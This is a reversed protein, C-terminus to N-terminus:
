LDFLSLQGGAPSGEIRLLRLKTDVGGPASFGGPKGGAALVRHCPVVLPFPNAGMAQGVERALLPDGLRAALEGYTVTAGAPVARALAYVRREFAGVRELDLAVFGLDAPQGALLATIAAVVRAIEPTAAAERAGPCRRRLAARTAAESSGPLLM